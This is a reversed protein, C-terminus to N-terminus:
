CFQTRTLPLGTGGRPDPRVALIQNVGISNDAFVLASATMYLRWVRARVPTAAAVAVDWGRDLNTCWARLTLAYHERLSRTDRM